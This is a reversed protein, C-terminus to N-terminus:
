GRADLADKWNEPVRGELEPLPKLHRKPEIVVEKGDRLRIVLTTQQNVVDQLVDELPRGKLEELTVTRDPM